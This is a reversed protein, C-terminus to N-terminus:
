QVALKQTRSFKDSLQVSTNKDKPIARHMKLQLSHQSIPSDPEAKNVTQSSQKKTTKPSHGPPADKSFLGVKYTNTATISQIASKSIQPMKPKSFLRPSGTHNPKEDTTFERNLEKEPSELNM